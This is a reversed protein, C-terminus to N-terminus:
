NQGAFSCMFIAVYMGREQLAEYLEPETLRAGMGEARLRADDEAVLRLHREILWARLWPVFSTVSLM